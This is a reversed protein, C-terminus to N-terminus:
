KIFISLMIRMIIAVELGSNQDTIETFLFIYNLLQSDWFM